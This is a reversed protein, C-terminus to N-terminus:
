PNVEYLLGGLPAAQVTAPTTVAPDVEFLYGDEVATVRLGSLTTPIAGLAALADATQQNNAHQMQAIDALAQATQEQQQQGTALMTSLSQVQGATAMVEDPLAGYRSGDWAGGGTDRPHGSHEWQVGRVGLGRPKVRVEVLPPLPDGVEGGYVLLDGGAKALVPRYGGSAAGLKGEVMGGAARAQAYYASPYVIEVPSNEPYTDPVQVGVKVLKAM